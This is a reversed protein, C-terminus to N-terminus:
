NRFGEWFGKCFSLVGDLIFFVPLLWVIVSPHPNFFFLIFSGFLWTMLFARFLRKAWTRFQGGSEYMVVGCIPCIHQTTM